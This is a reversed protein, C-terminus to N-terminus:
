RWPSGSCPWARSSTASGHALPEPDRLHLPPERRHERDGDRAARRANAAQAALLPRLASTSRRTPSRRSSASRPSASCRAASARSRCPPAAPRRRLRPRAPRRRAPRRARDRRHRRALGPRRGLRRPGRPDAARRARRPRAARHRLVLRPRPRAASARAGPRRPDGQLRVPCGLLAYRPRRPAAHQLQALDARAQHRPRRPRRPRAADRDRPRQSRLPAARRAAPAGLPRDLPRRGHLRARACREGVLRRRARPRPGERRPPARQGRPAGRRAGGRDGLHRRHQRQRRDHDPGLLSLGGALYDHLRRISAALTGAENYVPVVIEVVPPQGAVAEGPPPAQLEPEATVTM